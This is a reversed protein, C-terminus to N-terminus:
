CDEIYGVVRDLIDTCVRCGERIFKSQHSQLGPNHPYGYKNSM